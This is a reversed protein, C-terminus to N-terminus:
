TSTCRGPSRRTRRRSSRRWTRSSPRRTTRRRSRSPGSRRRTRRTTPTASTASATPTARRRGQGPLQRRLQGPRRRAAQGQRHDGRHLVRVHGLGQRAHLLHDEPRALRPGPGELDQGQQRARLAEQAARRDAGQRLREGPQRRRHDRRLRRPLPDLRPGPDQGEAGGRRSAARSADVVDVEGKLYRGFGGGTGHNGVIVNVKPDVESFAERARDSIRFVTSSGDVDVTNEVSGAPSKSATGGAPGNSTTEEDGGGCGLPLLTALLGIAALAIRRTGAQSLSTAIM